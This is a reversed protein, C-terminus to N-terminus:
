PRQTQIREVEALVEPNQLGSATAEELRAAVASASAQEAETRARFVGRQLNFDRLLVHHRETAELLEGRSRVPQVSTQRTAAVFELHAQWLEEPSAGRRWRMPVSGPTALDPKGSSSGAFTGDAYATFFLVFAGRDAVRAQQWTRRHIRAFHEGASHRFTAWFIKTSTGTDQFVHYIPDLFGLSALKTATPEFGQAVDAPLAEVLFPCTSEVNPDDTSTPIRVHLWKLIWALLVLPSRTGWWYERHSVRTSDISYSVSM